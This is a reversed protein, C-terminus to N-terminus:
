HKANEVKKLSLLKHELNLHTMKCNPVMMVIMIIFGFVSYNCCFLPTGERIIAGDLYRVFTTIKMIVLEASETKSDIEPTVRDFIHHVRGDRM